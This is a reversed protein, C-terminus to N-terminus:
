PVGVLISDDRTQEVFERAANMAVRGESAAPRARAFKVLDCEALFDGLLRRHAEDLVPQHLMELLFEETTRDPAHLGFREEVYHRVIGSLETYFPDLEGRELWGAAALRDMAAMAKRYASIRPSPSPRLSRRRWFLVFVATLGAAAALVSMVWIWPIRGGPMVAPDPNPKPEAKGPDEGLLSLFEVEVPETTVTQWDNQGKPRYRIEFRPIEYSGAVLVEIHFAMDWSSSGDPGHQPGDRQVKECRLERPFHDVRPWEIEYDAPATMTLHVGLPDVAFPSRTDLKLKISLEGATWVREFPVAAHQSLSPNQSPLGNSLLAFLLIPQMTFM